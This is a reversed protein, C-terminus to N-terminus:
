TSKSKFGHYKLKNIRKKIELYTVSSCFYYFDSVATKM